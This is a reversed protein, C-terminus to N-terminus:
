QLREVLNSFNIKILQSVLYKIKDEDTRKRLIILLGEVSSSALIYTILADEINIGIEKLQPLLENNLREHILIILEEKINEFKSGKSKDILILFETGYKEFVEMIKDVTEKIPLVHLNDSSNEAKSINLVLSTFETYVPEMITNFLEDKNKYYRYVNGLAVSSDLAIKRMSANLFGKEKFENLAATLIRNRIEDKLYQM